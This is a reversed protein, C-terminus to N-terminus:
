KNTVYNVVETLFISVDEPTHKAMIQKSKKGMKEILDPYNIFRLMLEALQEPQHPDFIYGNEGDAVIEAAGAWKSCIIPKGFMMAEVAVMGWVDEFTPFVFVDARQFYIGVQEYDVYGVWQIQSELNHTKVFAELEQRQSGDGVVLLSYDLYGQANLISCAELLEKLGKRPIIHGVFIFTPHKLHSTTIEINETNLLYVKPHPVLYPRTFVKNKGAKVVEILYNKGAENNSVFADAFRGMIHRLHTRLWFDQYDKGPSSGDYLIIVSWKGWAKLLLAFLTWISFATTLVINPNYSLLHGIIKPSLYTFSPTYGKAQIPLSVIRRKGVQKVAFSDEFGYLFGPWWATFVMTHSYLKTLESVIPQMYHGAGQLLWAFRLSENSTDRNPLKLDLDTM